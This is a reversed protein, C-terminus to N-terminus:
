RHTGDLSLQRPQIQLVAYMICFDALLDELIHPPPLLLTMIITMPTNSTPLRSISIVNYSSVKLQYDLRTDNKTHESLSM